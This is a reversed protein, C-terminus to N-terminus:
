AGGRFLELRLVVLARDQADTQLEALGRDILYQIKELTDPDADAPAHVPQGNPDLLGYVGREQRPQCYSEVDCRAADDAIALARALIGTNVRPAAAAGLAHPAVYDLTGAYNLTYCDDAHLTRKTM